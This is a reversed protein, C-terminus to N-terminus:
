ALPSPPARTSLSEPPRASTSQPTSPAILGLCVIPGVPDVGCSDVATVAGTIFLIVDDYDNDDYFGPIWTPDTPSAHALTPLIVLVGLLLVSALTGRAYDRSWVGIFSQECSAGPLMGLKPVAPAMM